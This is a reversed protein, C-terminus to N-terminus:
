YLETGIQTPPLSGPPRTGHGSEEPSLVVVRTGSRVRDALDVIDQNYLPICGSSAAQGITWPQSTGHIRYLTDRGGQHLYLARAGLPNDLGGEMGGAHPAYIDPERSIMNETPTWSPWDRQYPIM